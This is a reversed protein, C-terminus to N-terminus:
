KKNYLDRSPYLIEDGESKHLLEQINLQHTGILKKDDYLEVLGDKIDNPVLFELITDNWSLLEEKKDKRRNTELVEEGITTRVKVNMDGLGLFTTKKRLISNEYRFSM